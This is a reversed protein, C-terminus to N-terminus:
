YPTRYGIHLMIRQPHKTLDRLRQLEIPTKDLSLSLALSSLIEILLTFAGQLPALLPNFWLHGVWKLHGEGLTAIDVGLM